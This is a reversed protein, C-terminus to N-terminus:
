RVVGSCEHRDVDVRHALDSVREDLARSHETWSALAQETFEREYRRFVRSLPGPQDLQARQQLSPPLLLEQERDCAFFNQAM